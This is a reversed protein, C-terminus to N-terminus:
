KSINEKQETELYKEVAELYHVLYRKHRFIELSEDFASLPISKRAGDKAANWYEQVVGFGLLFFRDLETFNVLIFALGGQKAFQEMFRIQHEHINAIPLSAKRTEKADFCIPIGQVNGMYDVTSKEDFYALTIVGKESNLEVPKISTPLKQIVALDDDFYQRNTRNILEELNSGRLGRTSFYGM